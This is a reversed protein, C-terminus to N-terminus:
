DAQDMVNKAATEASRSEVRGVGEDSKESDWGTLPMRSM